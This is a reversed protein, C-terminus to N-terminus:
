LPKTKLMLYQKMIEILLTIVYITDAEVGVLKIIIADVSDTSSNEKEEDNDYFQDDNM